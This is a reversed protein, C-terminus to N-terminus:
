DNASSTLKLIKSFLSTSDNLHSHASVATKLQHLLKKNQRIPEFGAAVLWKFLPEEFPILVSNEEYFLPLHKNGIEYCLKAMQYMSGPNVMIAECPNIDIIILLNEDEYIVDDQLLNPGEKLFKMIIDRGASTRKNLIRKGTEYWEVSIVDISRNKIEVEKLNGIKEKIIM